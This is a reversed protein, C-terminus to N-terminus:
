GEEGPRDSQKGWTGYNENFLHAAEVLMDDTVQERTLNEYFQSAMNSHRQVRTNEIFTLHPNPDFSVKRPKEFPFASSPPKHFGEM